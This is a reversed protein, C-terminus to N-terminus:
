GACRAAPHARRADDAGRTRGRPHPGAARAVSTRRTCGQRADARATRTGMRSGRRRRDRGPSGAPPAWPARRSRGRARRGSGPGRRRCGARPAGRPRRPRRAGRSRAGGARAELPQQRGEAARVVVAVVRDPQEGRVLRGVVAADLQAHGVHDVAAARGRADRHRVPGSPGRPRAWCPTPGRWRPVPPPSRRTASSWPGPAARCGASSATGAARTTSARATSTPAPAAGRLRRPAGGGRGPPPGGARRRAPHRVGGAARDLGRRGAAGASRRSPPAPTPWVPDGPVPDDTAAWGCRHAEGGADAAGGPLELDVRRSGAASADRSAGRRGARGAPPDASRM